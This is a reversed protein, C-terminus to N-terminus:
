EGLTFAMVMDGQKFGFLANGGVAVAVYQRGGVAYTVPPANVGADCQCSWLEQGRAARRVRAFRGKGAGRLVGPRRGDGARRRGAARRDQVQWRLRGGAGLDLATLTGWAEDINQTSAYQLM